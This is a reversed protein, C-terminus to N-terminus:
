LKKSPNINYSLSVTIASISHSIYVHMFLQGILFKLINLLKTYQPINCHCHFKMQKSMLWGLGYYKRYHSMYNNQYIDNFFKLFISKELLYHYQDSTPSKM